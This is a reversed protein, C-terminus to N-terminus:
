RPLIFTKKSRWAPSKERLYAVAEPLAKIIYETEAETNKASLSLRLSSGALEHPRGIALLVHSPELSGATCASGSSACIGIGDLHMVLTEGEIGEFCLNVNGPLRQETDGNVISHPIKKLEELLRSRMKSLKQSNEKIKGCAEEFAAAMGVIAPVNETGARRDGEQHGGLILSTLSIGAKCYLLGAGKPGHFKHASLSLMDINQEMVDIPLQGAAQVADTHFTVGKRRCITGIERIPQIAGIENNAYMVTVLCTEDKISEEIQKPNIIGNEPVDLLTVSFGENKLRNLSNLVAHHEFKTSIIHKKGQGAGNKAASVLAQNVSESGGSTFTLEKSKCGLLAAMTERAEGVAEAAEQGLSYLGSPNGYAEKMFPLMAELARPSLETTSANDAYIRRRDPM